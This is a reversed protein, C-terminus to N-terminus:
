RASPSMNVACCAVSAVAAPWIVTGDGGQYANLTATLLWLQLVFLFLVICLVGHLITTLRGRILLQKM